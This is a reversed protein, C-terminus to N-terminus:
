LHDKGSWNNWVPLRYTLRLGVVMMARWGLLSKKPGLSQNGMKTRENQDDNERVNGVEHEAAEEAECALGEERAM